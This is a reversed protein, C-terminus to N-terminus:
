IEETLAQMHRVDEALMQGYPTHQFRRAVDLWFPLGAQVQERAPREGAGMRYLLYDVLLARHPEDAATRNAQLISCAQEGRGQRYLAEGLDITAIAPAGAMLARDFAAEAEAYMGRVLLTRGFGYLPFPDAPDLSLAKTLSEQSEDLLGLQRYTNGLLTLARVDAKGAAVLAELTQRAGTFDEALYLRQARTFPTVMHRNAWMFIVQVALLLGFAGTLAPVRLSAPGLAATLLAAALLVLALLLGVQAPREWQRLRSILFATFRGM